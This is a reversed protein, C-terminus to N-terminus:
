DDKDEEDYLEKVDELTLEAGVEAFAELLREGSNQFEKRGLEKRLMRRFLLKDFVGPSHAASLADEPKKKCEKWLKVLEFVLEAILIISAPDLSLGEQPAYKAYIKQSIEATKM